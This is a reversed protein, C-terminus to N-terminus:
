QNLEAEIAVAIDGLLGTWYTGGCDFGHRVLVLDAAPYVYIFQCFNGEAYYARNEVDLFWYNLYYNTHEGRNTFIADTGRSIQNVWAQPIVQRDGVKGGNLYLWGLKAFDVARGNIGVSMREFGSRESDLDWSGDGEAGMPKWLRTELYESVSMGTARELVMGLLQPNYDNYHYRRGPDEVIETNLVSRRLDPSHSTIFDDSFPNSGEREFRIGSSMMILHRLTINGFRQDRELLEPIYATVPEDLNSIFGEDIAIGILTSAFSKAVSLSAQIAERNSGNFYGEYLLTDNHLVIFATTNSEELYTEFQTNDITFDDLIESEETAFIYPQDSAKVERSPFRKWDDFKSGGWLIGRAALSTDTSALAWVYIGAVVIGLAAIVMLLVILSRKLINMFVTQAENITTTENKRRRSLNLGPLNQIQLNRSKEMIIEKLLPVSM